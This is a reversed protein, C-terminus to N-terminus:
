LNRLPKGPAKQTLIWLYLSGEQMKEFHSRRYEKIKYHM